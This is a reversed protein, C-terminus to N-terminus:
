AFGRVRITGTCLRRRAVRLTLEAEERLKPSLPRREDELAFSLERIADDYLHLEFATMGLGRWTRANPQIEHARLFHERAVSYDDRDYADVAVRIERSFEDPADSAESPTAQARVPLPPRSVVACAFLL